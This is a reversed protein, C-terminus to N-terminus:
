EKIEFGSIKEGKKLTVIAKKWARNQGRFKGKVINKEAHFNLVNVKIVHVKFIKEVTEAIQHKNAKPHVKFSYKGSTVGTISKESIIPKQLIQM